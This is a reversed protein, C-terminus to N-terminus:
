VSNVAKAIKIKVNIGELPNKRPFQGSAVAHKYMEDFIKLKQVYSLKRKIKKSEFQKLIRKNKVMNERKTSPLINLFLCLYFHGWM